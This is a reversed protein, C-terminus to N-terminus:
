GGHAGPVSVGRSGFWGVPDIKTGNATWVEYHLHPGTSQGRNGMTAIQDGARVQQGVSVLSTDIHGYVGITGDDQKLRVWLGFGSAPGSEIVTGNTVARIPTGISSAIDIGNHNTGWRPGFGSTFAGDAPFVVGPRRAAEEAAAREAAERALREAEAKAQAIREVERQTARQLEETFDTLGTRPVQLVQPATSLSVSAESAAPAVDASASGATASAITGGAVLLASAALPVAIM